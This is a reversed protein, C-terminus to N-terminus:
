ESVYVGETTEAKEEVQSLVEGKYVWVKIGIKGYTTQAEHRAFDMNARLTQLPVRGERLWVTRAMEAGSLRGAVEIKVGQAGWGAQMRLRQAAWAGFHEGHEAWQSWEVGGFIRFRQPAAAKFLELHRQLLEEGWGGDLDVLFRVRAADLVDLLEGAPRQDWGGGFAEGLHNHADIVPFRPQDVRTTKSVLKPRPKFNSLLM